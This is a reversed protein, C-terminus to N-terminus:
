GIYIEEADDMNPAYEKHGGISLYIKNDLVYLRQLDALMPYNPQVLAVIPENALEPNDDMMDTLTRILDSLTINNM